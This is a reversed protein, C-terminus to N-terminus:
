PYHNAWTLWECRCVMETHFLISDPENCFLQVGQWTKTRTRGMKSLSISGSPHLWPPELIHPTLLQDTWLHIFGADLRPEIQWYGGYFSRYETTSATINIGEQWPSSPEGYIVPVLWRLFRAVWSIQISTTATYNMICPSSPSSHGSWSLLVPVTCLVRQYFINKYSLNVHASGYPSIAVGSVGLATQFACRGPKSHDCKPHGQSDTM